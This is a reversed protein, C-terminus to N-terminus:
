AIIREDRVGKVLLRLIEDIDARDMTVDPYKRAMRERDAVLVSIQYAEQKYALIDTADLTAFQAKRCRLIGYDYLLADKEESLIVRGEHLFTLRDAIQALDSTIHSSLLVAHTEDEVFALLLDLVDERVLPDLGSTAEDLILLTPHHALAAAIALTMTMGKSYRSIKKRVDLHFRQLLEQFLTEDWQRYVDRLIHSLQSATLYGPFNDGDYVVGIADRLTTDDDSIERGFVRISGAQPKLTGLICDITTSKGAGNAGVLGMISGAPLSFSVDRLAFDSGAYTKNVGTLTLADTMDITGKM